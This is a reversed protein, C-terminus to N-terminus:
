VFNQICKQQDWKTSGMTSGARLLTTSGLTPDTVSGTSRMTSGMLQDHLQDMIWSKSLTTSGLMPDTVSGISRMTSRTTSGNNIWSKIINNIRINSWNNIRKIENNIGNNFGARTAQSTKWLCERLASFMCLQFCSKEWMCKKLSLIM